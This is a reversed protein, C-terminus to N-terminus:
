NDTAPTQKAISRLRTVQHRRQEFVESSVIESLFLSSQDTAVAQAVREYRLGRIMRPTWEDTRSGAPGMVNASVSAHGLQGKVGRGWSFVKGEKTAALSHASGCVLQKLEIGALAPIRTPQAVFRYIRDTLAEHGDQFLPPEVEGAENADDIATDVGVEGLGLRGNEAEGWAYTTGGARLEFQVDAVLECDVTTSATSTGGSLSWRRISFKSLGQATPPTELSTLRCAARLRQGHEYPLLGVLQPKRTGHTNLAVKLSRRLSTQSPDLSTENEMFLVAAAGNAFAGRARAAATDTRYFCRAMLPPPAQLMQPPSIAVTSPRHPPLANVQQPSRMTPIALVHELIEQVSWSTRRSSDGEDPESVSGEDGYNGVVHAQTQRTVMLVPIFVGSDSSFQLAFADADFLDLVVLVALAGAEQLELVRHGIEGIITEAELEAESEAGLPRLDQPGASPSVSTLVRQDIELVFISNTETHAVTPKKKTISRARLEQQRLRKAAAAMEPHYVHTAFGRRGVSREATNSGSVALEVIVGSVTATSSGLDDNGTDEDRTDGNFAESEVSVTDSTKIPLRFQMYFGAPKGRPMVVLRTSVRGRLWQDVGQAYTPFTANNANGPKLLRLSRPDFDALRDLSLAFRMARKQWLTGNNSEINDTGPRTTPGTTDSPLDVNETGANTADKDVDEDVDDADLDMLCCVWRTKDKNMFDHEVANPSSSTGALLELYFGTEGEGHEVVQVAGHTRTALKLWVSAGEALIHHDGVAIQRLRLASVGSTEEPIFAHESDVGRRRGWNGWEFFRSSTKDACLAVSHNGRCAVQTVQVDSLALVPEPQALYTYASSVMHRDALAVQYFEHTDGHGLQGESAEGWTFVDGARSLAICYYDGCCIQAVPIPDAQQAACGEFYLLKTASTLLNEDEGTREDYYSAYHVQGSTRASLTEPSGHGLQGHDNFGWSFVMGDETLILAHRLGCAVQIIPIELHLRLRRPINSTLCITPEEERGKDNQPAHIRPLCHGWAFISFGDDQVGLACTSSAAITALKVNLDVFTGILHIPAGSSSKNKQQSGILATSPGSGAAFVGGNLAAREIEARAELERAIRRNKFFGQLQTASQHRQQVRHQARRQADSVSCRRRWVSQIMLAASAKRRERRGEFTVYQRLLAEYMQTQHSFHKASPAFTLPNRLEEGSFLALFEHLVPTCAVYARFEESSISINSATGLSVESKTARSSAINEVCVAASRRVFSAVKLEHSKWVRAVGQTARGVGNMICLLLRAVDTEKLRQASAYSEAKSTSTAPDHFLELLLTLKEQFDWIARSIVVLTALFELAYLRDGRGDAFTVFVHQLHKELISPPDKTGILLKLNRQFHDKLQPPTMIDSVGM